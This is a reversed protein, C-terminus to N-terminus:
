SLEPLGSFLQELCERLVDDLVLDEHGLWQEYAAICSALVVHSTLQPILAYSSVKLRMAVFDAVVGRWEAYRLTSHAQLAPVHLILSMRERHQALYAPRVHNFSVIAETLVSAISHADDSAALEARMLALGETFRGWVVDNKSPYYRFFTRRGIGCASAIEDVTTAEFGQDLFLELAAAELEAASTVRRRGPGERRVEMEIPFGKRKAGLAMIRGPPLFALTWALKPPLM